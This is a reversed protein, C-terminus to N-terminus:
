RLERRLVDYFAQAAQREIWPKHGCHDLLVFRFYRSALIEDLYGRAWSVSNANLLFGRRAIDIAPELVEALSMTGYRELGHGLTAATTPVSIATYGFYKTEESERIALLVSPDTALPAPTSGDIAVPEGVAPVVLMYTAGGLGSGGPDSVGLAFAAAVAADVANGGERLIQVGVESAIASSSAVIGNEGRVAMRGAAPAAISGLLFSVGFAAILFSRLFRVGWIM